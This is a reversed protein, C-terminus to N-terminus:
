ADRQPYQSTSAFARQDRWANLDSQRYAVRRLGCKVYRPGTGFCRAKNLFSVSLNLYRAADVVSLSPDHTEPPRAMEQSNRLALASTYTDLPM